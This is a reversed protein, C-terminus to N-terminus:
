SPNDPEAPIITDIVWHKGFFDFNDNARKFYVDVEIKKIDGMVRATVIGRVVGKTKDDSLISQKPEWNKTEYIRILKLDEIFKDYSNSARYEVSMFDYAEKYQKNKLAIFYGKSGTELVPMQSFGFSVIFGIVGCFIMFYLFFKFLKNM